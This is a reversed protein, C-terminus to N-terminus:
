GKDPTQEPNHTESTQNSPKDSDLHSPTHTYTHTHTHIHMHTHTHFGELGSVKPGLFTDQNATHGPQFTCLQLIQSLLFQGRYRPTRIESHGSQPTLEVTTKFAKFDGRPSHIYSHRRKNGCSHGLGNDTHRTPNM